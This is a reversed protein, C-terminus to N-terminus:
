NNNVNTNLRIYPRTTGIVSAAKTTTMYCNPINYSSVNIFNQSSNNFDSANGNNNVKTLKLVEGIQFTQVTSVSGISITLTYTFATESYVCDGINIESDADQCPLGPSDDYYLVGKPSVNTTGGISPDLPGMGNFGTGDGIPTPFGTEGVSFQRINWYSGDWQM